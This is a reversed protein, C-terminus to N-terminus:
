WRRPRRSTPSWSCCTPAPRSAPADAAARRRRRQDRVERDGRLSHEQRRAGGEPGGREIRGLSQQDPDHRAEQRRIEQGRLRGAGQRRDRRGRLRPVRLEGGRRQPHDAHGGGLRGHVAGQGPQRVARDRDVGAYRPRRVAGRGERAARTRARRGRGQGSQKRRRARRLEVKKGLVGGKANIEDIAISLGRVIAEGSKASQGSMAAVLGFKITSRRWRRCCPSVAAAAPPWCCRAPRYAFHPNSPM